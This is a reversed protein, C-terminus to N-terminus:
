GRSATTTSRSPRRPRGAAGRGPHGRRLRRARAPPHPGPRRRRLHDPRQDPMYEDVLVYGRDMAVGQEEYGLGASVPGRGVAVLLVEAEFKKGDALTVRVGDSPTSPRRSSPAWTSSSAASASRASWCSPATRTRSRSSTRCARSSPSTPASPSGRAPSSSASSAAAWSSRPSRCATWSWRTTALLHHPQRRDGPGAAVEARLRHRAPHAARTARHRRRRRLDPLVAPGRGRHLHGQPHRGPGAPGQVPPRGRRGQVQQRGAIDIGEFTAKVGFQESERAQDAIEGAHLLAKTPICGQHLCTGGVKDKEILAVDPGAAGGRLARRLRRQWRRPDSPRVRDGAEGAM